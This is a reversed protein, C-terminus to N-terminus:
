KSVVLYINVRIFCHQKERLAEIVSEHHKRLRSKLRKKHHTSLIQMFHANRNLLLKPRVCHGFQLLVTGTALCVIVHRATGDMSAAHFSM